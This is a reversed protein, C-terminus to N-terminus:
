DHAKVCMSLDDDHRWGCGKGKVFTCHGHAQYCATLETDACNFKTRQSAAESVCANGCVHVCRQDALVPKGLPAAHASVSVFVALIFPIFRM